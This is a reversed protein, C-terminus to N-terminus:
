HRYRRRRRHRFRRDIPIPFLRRRHRPWNLESSGGGATESGSSALPCFLPGPKARFGPGRKRRATLLQRARYHPHRPRCAACLGQHLECPPPCRRRLYQRSGADAVFEEHRSAPALDALRQGAYLGQDRDRVARHPDPRRDMRGRRTCRRPREASRARGPHAAAPHAPCLSRDRICM